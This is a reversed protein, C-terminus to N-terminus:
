VVDAFEDFKASGEINIYVSIISWMYVNHLWWFYEGTVGVNRTVHSRWHVSM